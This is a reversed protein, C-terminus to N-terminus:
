KKEDRDLVEQIATKRYTAKVNASEDVKLVVEDGDVQVVRAVLGGITMVKDGKKLESILAKRKKEEKKQGRILFFYLGVLVVGILIFQGYSSLFSASTQGTIVKSEAVTAGGNVAVVKYGFAQGASLGTDPYTTQDAPVTKIETFTKEDTYRLIKYGTEGSVDKWSLVIETQGNGKVQLDIAPVATAEPGPTTAVPQSANVTAVPASSAPAAPAPQSTGVAPGTSASGGMQALTFTPFFVSQQHM